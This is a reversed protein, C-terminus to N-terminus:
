SHAGTEARTDSPHRYSFILGLLGLQAMLGPALVPPAKARMAKQAVGIAGVTPDLERQFEAAGNFHLIVGLLGAGVCLVMLLRFVRLIGSGPAVVLSFLTVLALAILVLPAWQWADEYHSMLLLEVGTGAFGILLLVHVWRRPAALVDATV